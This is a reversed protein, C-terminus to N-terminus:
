GRDTRSGSALSWLARMALLQGLRADERTRASAKQVAPLRRLIAAVTWREVQQAITKRGAPPLRVYQKQIAAELSDRTEIDRRINQLLTLHSALLMMLLGPDGGDAFFRGAVREVDATEGLLSRDIADSLGAPAGDAVIAEVDALEIRRRGKAYLTLKALEGRTALRDAGLLTLLYDRADASIELGAVRAEADILAILARGDDPYCEISIANNAKEFATRLGSGKKLNAAEVILWCNKSPNAILPDIARALDRSKADIWIVRFGGLM